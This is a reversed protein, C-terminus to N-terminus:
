NIIICQIFWVTLYIISVETIGQKGFNKTSQGTVFRTTTDIEHKKLADFAEAQTPYAAITM